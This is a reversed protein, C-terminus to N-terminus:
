IASRASLTDDYMGTVAMKSSDDLTLYFSRCISFKPSAHGMSYTLSDMFKKVSTELLRQRRFITETSSSKRDRHLTLLVVSGTTLEEVRGVTSYYTGLVSEMSSLYFCPCKVVAVYVYSYKWSRIINVQENICLIIFAYNSSLINMQAVFVPFMGLNNSHLDM